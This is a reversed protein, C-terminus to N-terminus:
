NKRGFGRKGLWIVSKKNNEEIPQLQFAFLFLLVPECLKMSRYKKMKRIACKELNWNTKNIKKCINWIDIRGKMTYMNNRQRMKRYLSIAFFCFFTSMSFSRRSSAPTDNEYRDTTWQQRVDNWCRENSYKWKEIWWGEEDRVQWWTNPFTRSKLGM